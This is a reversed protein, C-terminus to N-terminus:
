EEFIAECQNNVCECAIPFVYWDVLETIGDREISCYEAENICENCPTDVRCDINVDCSIDCGEITWLSCEPGPVDLDATEYLVFYWFLIVLLILILIMKWGWLFDTKNERKKM